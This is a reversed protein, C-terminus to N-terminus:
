RSRRRRPSDVVRRSARAHPGRSRDASRSRGVVPRSGAPASPRARSLRTVFDLASHIAIRRAAPNGQPGMLAGDGVDDGIGLDGGAVHDDLDLIGVRPRHPRRTGILIDANSSGCRAHSRAAGRRRGRGCGRRARPRRRRSVPRLPPSREQVFAPKHLLALRSRPLDRTRRARPSANADAETTRTRAQAAYPDDLHASPSADRTAAGATVTATAVRAARAGREPQRREQCGYQVSAGAHTRDDVLTM